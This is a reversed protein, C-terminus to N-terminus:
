AEAHEEAGDVGFRLRKGAEAIAGQVKVVAVLTRKKGPLGCYQFAM